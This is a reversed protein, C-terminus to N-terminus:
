GGGPEQAPAQGVKPVKPPPFLSCAEPVTRDAPPHSVLGRRLILLSLFFVFSLRGM